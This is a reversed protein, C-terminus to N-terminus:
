YISVSNHHCSYVYGDMDVSIGMYIIDGQWHHRSDNLCRHIVKGTSKHCVIVGEQADSIYMHDGHIHLAVPFALPPTITSNIERLFEYTPSFLVICKRESDVVYAIGETDFDIDEPWQLQGIESGTTGFSHVYMLESDFIQIKGNGSDCVYVRNKYFRIDNLYCFEGPQSGHSEIQKVLRGVSNYKQVRNDGSIFVSGTKSDVYIGKATTDDVCKVIRKIAGCRHVHIYRKLSFQTVYIDGTNSLAIRWTSEYEFKRIPTHLNKPPHHVFIPYTAIIDTDGIRVTLQHRGRKRPTFSLEYISPSKYSVKAPVVWPRGILSQLEAGIGTLAGVSPQDIANVFRLKIVSPKSTMAEFSTGELFAIFGYTKILKEVQEKSPTAVIMSATEITPSSKVHEIMTALKQVRTEISTKMTVIEEDCASDSTLKVFDMVSECEGKVMKIENQQRKITRIKEETAEKGQRLLRKKYKQQLESFANQIRQQSSESQETVSKKLSELQSLAQRLTRDADQLPLSKLECRFATAVSNVFDYKHGGDKPHDALTCDRCILQNCTSCYFTKLNGNHKSCSYTQAKKSPLHILSGQQLNALSVVNHDAFVKMQKHAGECKACIFLGKEDCSYCFAVAKEESCSQCAIEAKVSAQKMTNYTDILENIFFVTPLNDANNGEVPVPKRCQPCTIEQDKSRHRILKQICEKCYTHLCTLAKPHCYVEM